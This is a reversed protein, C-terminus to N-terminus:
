KKLDAISNDIDATIKSVEAVYKVKKAELKKIQLINRRKLSEAESQKEAEARQNAMFEKYQSHANRM